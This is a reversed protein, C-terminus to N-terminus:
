GLGPGSPLSIQSRNLLSRDESSANVKVDFTINRRINEPIEDIKNKIEDLKEIQESFPFNQSQLNALIAIATQSSLNELQDLTTVGYTGLANFLKSIAEEDAGAKSLLAEQLEPLTKKGLEKAESALDQLADKSALGGKVGAAELNEFAIEVGGFAEPIGKEAVQQIGQLAVQAELASLKGQEFATVVYGELEQFSKGSAQVLLQLNNLSGGLNNTFVAALQGAVEEGTGLLQEFAAGVGQFATKASDDLAEFADSFEGSAFFSGEGFTLDSIRQLQGNIIVSLQGPDFLDAFFRDASKRAQNGPDRGGGFVHGVASFLGKGLSEGILGGAFQGLPGAYDGLTDEFLDEFGKGGLISGFSQGIGGVVDKTIGGNSIAGVLSQISNSVADFISQTFNASTQNGDPAFLQDIDDSSVKANKSLEIIEGNVQALTIGYGRAEQSLREFETTQVKSKAASEETAKAFKITTAVVPPLLKDLSDLQSRAGDLAQDLRKQGDATLGSTKSLQDLRERLVDVDKHTVKIGGAFSNFTADSIQTIENAQKLSKSLAISQKSAEKMAEGADVFARAAEIDGNFAPLVQLVKIGRIFNTLAKTALPIAESALKAFVGVLAAIEKAFQAIDVKKIATSLLGLTANLDENNAIARFTENAANEISTKLISIQDGVDASISGVEETKKRSAELILNRAVQIEAEKSLEARQVGVSDAYAKTAADLDLIGLKNQLIRTQGTAFAQQLQDLEETLNGGTQEALARAAKTLEIFEDPKAGARVSEIARKQLDFNTITGATAEALQNQFIDASKGAQDSLRAFASAVDDVASGKELVQIASEANTSLFNFAKSALEAGQNLGTMVNSFTAFRNSASDTAKEVKAIEEGVSNLVKTTGQADVIVRIEINNESASGFAM